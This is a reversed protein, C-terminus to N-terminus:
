FSFPLQLTLHNVAALSSSFVRMLSISTCVEWLNLSLRGWKGEDFNTVHFTEHQTPHDLLVSLLPYSFKPNLGSFKICWTQKAQKVFHRVQRKYTSPIRVPRICNKNISPSSGGAWVLPNPIWSLYLAQCQLIEAQYHTAVYLPPPLIAMTHVRTTISSVMRDDACTLVVSADIPCRCCFWVCSAVPLVSLALIATDKPVSVGKVVVGPAYMVPDYPLIYVVPSVIM